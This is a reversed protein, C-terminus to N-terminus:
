GSLTPLNDKCFWPHDTFLGFVGSTQIVSSVQGGDGSVLGASSGTM